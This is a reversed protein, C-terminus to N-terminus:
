RWGSQRTEGFKALREFGSIHHQALKVAKSVRSEESFLAKGTAEKTYEPIDAAKMGFTERLRYASLAKLDARYKETQSGKGKTRSHITIESPRHSVLFARFQDVLADDPFSWDIQLLAVIGGESAPAPVTPTGSGHARAMLEEWLDRRSTADRPLWPSLPSANIENESKPVLKKYRRTREIQSVSLYPSAPWEPFFQFTSTTPCVAPLGELKALECYGEFTKKKANHRWAEVAERILPVERKYEYSRLRGLEREPCSRFDWEERRLKNM